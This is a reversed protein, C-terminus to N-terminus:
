PRVSEFRENYEDYLREEKEAIAQLRKWRVMSDIVKDDYLAKKEKRLDRLQKEIAKHTVEFQYLRPGFRQQLNRREQPTSERYEVRYQQYDGRNSYFTVRDSYE